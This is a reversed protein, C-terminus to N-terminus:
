CYVFLGLCVTGLLLTSNMWKKHGTCSPRIRSQHYSSFRSLNRQLLHYPFVKQMQRNRTSFIFYLSNISWKSTLVDLITCKNWWSIIHLINKSFGFEYRAYFDPRFCTPCTQTHEKKKSSQYSYTLSAPLHAIYEVTGWLHTYYLM